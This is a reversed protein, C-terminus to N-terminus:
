AFAVPPAQSWTLSHRPPLLFIQPSLHGNQQETLSTPPLPLYRLLMTPQCSVRLHRLCGKPISAQTKSQSELHYEVGEDNLYDSYTVGTGAMGETHAYVLPSACQLLAFLVLLLKQLSRKMM